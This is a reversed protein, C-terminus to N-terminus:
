CLLVATSKNGNFLEGYKQLRVAMTLLIALM